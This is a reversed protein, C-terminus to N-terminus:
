SLKGACHEFVITNLAEGVVASDILQTTDQLTCLLRVVSSCCDRKTKTQGRVICLTVLWEYLM